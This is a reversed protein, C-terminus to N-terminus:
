AAEFFIKEVGVKEFIHEDVGARAPGGCADQALDAALGDIKESQSVTMRVVLSRRSANAFPQLNREGAMVKVARCHFAALGHLRIDADHAQPVLNPGAGVPADIAQQFLSVGDAAKPNDFCRAMSRTMDGEKSLGIANEDGAVNDGVNMEKRAPRAQPQRRGAKAGVAGEVPPREIAQRRELRLEDTESM